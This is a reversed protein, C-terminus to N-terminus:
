PGIEILFIWCVGIQFYFHYPHDCILKRSFNMSFQPSSMVFIVMVRFIFIPFIQFKIIRKIWGIASREHLNSKKKESTTLNVRFRSFWFFFWIEFKESKIKSNHDNKHHWWGLKRHIKWSFENTVTGIMKNGFLHISFKEWQFRDM